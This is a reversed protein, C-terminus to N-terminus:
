ETERDEDALGYYSGHRSYYGYSKAHKPNIMNCLVGIGKTPFAETLHRLGTLIDFRRTKTIDFVYIIADVINALIMPDAVARVPPSDIVIVDYESKALELWETMMESNLLEIPNPPVTGSPVLFLDPIGTQKVTAHLVDYGNASNLHILAESLGPKRADTRPVPLESATPDDPTEVQVLQERPFTNHQSPRRMDADILLVRNGRQTLAVALNSSITSKGEGRTASTVLITKVAAGPNLFPLKAQLVRFAEATRSSPADHVMLPLRYASRRKISPLVGLFSPSEPLADLQRVAEELRLYTDKFYNKAVAFTVGLLMGVFAGLVLNLKLRPKLPEEPARAKDMVKISETRAQSLIEAERMKTELAIVQANYIEVDRKLRYFELQDPSWKRLETFHANIKKTVEDKQEKLSISAAEAENVKERLAQHLPNYTSTTSKIEKEEKALRAATETIKKDIATVEPHTEDYKGLLEAKDIEYQNLNDQLKSHSPNRAITESILEESIGELEELYTAHRLKAGVLQNILENETVQLSLIIQAQTGGEANLTLKTHKEQFAFLEKEANTLNDQTQNLMEQTLPKQWWEMREVAEAEVVTQFVAAIRNALNQARESVREKVSRAGRQQVTITIVKGDPSEEVKLQEDILTKIFFDEWESAELEGQETAEQDLAINLVDALWVIIRGRHVPLPDLLGEDRLQRVAPAIVLDRSQLQVAFASVSTGGILGSIPLQSLLSSAAQGDLVRITTESQFVPPTLDTILFAGFVSLLFILLVSWKNRFLIWFYDSLRIERVDELHRDATEPM